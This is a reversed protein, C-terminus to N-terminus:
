PRPAAPSSSATSTAAPRPPAPAAPARDDGRVPLVLRRPLQRLRRLDHALWGAASCSRNSSVTTCTAASFFEVRTRGNGTSSSRKRSRDVGASGTRRRAPRRRPRGGRAPRGPRGRWRAGSLGAPGPETRRRRDPGSRRPGPGSRRPDQWVRKPAVIGAQGRGGPGSAPRGRCAAAIRPRGQGPGTPGLARGYAEDSPSLRDLWHRGVDMRVVHPSRPDRRRSRSRLPTPASAPAPAAHRHRARILPASGSRSRAPSAAPWPGRVPPQARAPTVPRVPPTAPCLAPSSPPTVASSTSRASRATRVGPVRQITPPIAATSTAATQMRGASVATPGHEAEDAGVGAQRVRHEAQQRARGSSAKAATEGITCPGTRRIPMSRVTAQARAARAAPLANRATGPRGWSQTPVATAPAPMATQLTSMGTTM